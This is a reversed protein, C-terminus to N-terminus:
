YRKLETTKVLLMEESHQLRTLLVKAIVQAIFYAIILAPLLITVNNVLAIGFEPVITQEWTFLGFTLLFAILICDVVFFITIYKGSKLIPVVILILCLFCLAYASRQYVAQFFNIATFGILLLTSATAIKERQVLILIAVMLGLIMSAAPIYNSPFFIAFFILLILIISSCRATWKLFWIRFALLGPISELNESPIM